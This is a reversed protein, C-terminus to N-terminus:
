LGDQGPAIGGAGLGASAIANRTAEMLDPSAATAPSPTAGGILSEGEGEGRQRQPTTPLGKQAAVRLYALEMGDKHQRLLPDNAYVRAVDAGNDLFPQGFKTALRTAMREVNGEGVSEAIPSVNQQLQAQMNAREVKQIGPIVEQAFIRMAMIPDGASLEDIRDWNVREIVDEATKADALPDDAAGPPPQQVQALRGELQAIRESLQQETTARQGINKEIEIYSRGLDAPDKWGKAEAVRRVEEPFAAWPDEAGEDGSPQEGGPTPYEGEGDAPDVKFEEALPDATQGGSGFGDDGEPM